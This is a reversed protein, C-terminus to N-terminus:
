GRRKKTRGVSRDRRKVGGGVGTSSGTGGREIAGRSRKRRSEGGPRGRSRDRSRKRDDKNRETEQTPPTQQPPMPQPPPIEPRAPYSPIQPSSQPFHQQQQQQYVQQQVFQQPPGGRPYSSQRPPYPRMGRPPPGSSPPYQQQPPSQGYFDGQQQPPGQQQQFGRPYFGRGRGGQYMGRPHSFPRPAFQQQQHYMFQDQQPQPIPPPSGQQVFDQQQQPPLQQQQFYQQQQEKYKMQQQTERERKMEEGRKKYEEWQRMVDEFIERGLIFAKELSEKTPAEFVMELVGEAPAEAGGLVKAKTAGSESQIKKMNAGGKGIMKNPAKFNPNFDVNIMCSQKWNGSPTQYPEGPTFGKPVDLPPPLGNEEAIISQIKLIPYAEQRRTKTAFLNVLRQLEAPQYVGIKKFFWGTLSNEHMPDCPIAVRFKFQMFFYTQQEVGPKMTSTTALSPDPLFSKPEWLKELGSIAEFVGHLKGDYSTYVLIITGIKITNRAALIQDSKPFGLMSLRMCELFHQQSEILVVYGDSKVHIAHQAVEGSPGLEPQIRPSETFAQEVNPAHSERHAKLTEPFMQIQQPDLSYVPEYYVMIMLCHGISPPLEHGELQMAIPLEMHVREDVSTLYATKKFPLEVMRLWSVSCTFCEQSEITYEFPSTMKAVGYFTEDNDVALFLFVNKCTRFAQNFLQIRPSNLIMWRQRKISAACAELDDARCIFYRCLEETSDPLKEKPPPPLTMPSRYDESIEDNWDRLALVIRDLANALARKVHPADGLNQSTGTVLPKGEGGASTTVTSQQQVREPNNKLMLTRFHLMEEQSHAFDCDKGYSCTKTTSFSQCM